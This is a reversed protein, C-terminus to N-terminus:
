MTVSCWAEEILSPESALFMSHLTTMLGELPVTLIPNLCFLCDQVLVNTGAHVARVGGAVGQVPRWKTQVHGAIIETSRALKHKVHIRERRMTTLVRGVVVQVSLSM